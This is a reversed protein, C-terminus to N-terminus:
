GESGEEYEVGSLTCLVVGSSAKLRMSGEAADANDLEVAICIGPWEVVTGRENVLGARETAASSLIRAREGPSPLRSM